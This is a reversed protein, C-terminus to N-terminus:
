VPLFQLGCQNRDAFNETFLADARDHGIPHHRLVIYVPDQGHQAVNQGLVVREGARLFVNEVAGAAVFRGEHRDSEREPERM